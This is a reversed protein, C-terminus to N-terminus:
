EIKWDDFDMDSTVLYEGRELQKREDDTLDYQEVMQNLDDPTEGYAPSYSLEFADFCENTLKHEPTCIIREMFSMGPEFGHVEISLNREAVEDEIGIFWDKEHGYGYCLDSTRTMCVLASWACEGAIHVTVTGDSHETTSKVKAEFIRAMRRRDPENDPIYMDKFLEDTAERTGRARLEFYCFNPM